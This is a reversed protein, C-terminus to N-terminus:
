YYSRRYKNLRAEIEQRLDPHQAFVQDYILGVEYVASAIAQRVPNDKEGDGHQKLLPMLNGIEMAARSATGVIMQAIERDM